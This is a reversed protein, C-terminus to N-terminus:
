CVVATMVHHTGILTYRVDFRHGPQFQACLPQRVTFALTQAQLDVHTLAVADFDFLRGVMGFAAKYFSEKASFVLTLLLHWDAALKRLCALETDDVVLGAMASVAQASGIEELDIGVGNCRGAPLVTAAAMTRCHTISGTVGAPWVPERMGGVAVQAEGLGRAALAARACRRGFYYEAQRKRVANGIQPPCAIGDRRFWQPDFAAVDYRVLHCALRWCDVRCITGASQGSLLPAFDPQVADFTTM